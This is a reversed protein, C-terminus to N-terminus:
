NHQSLQPAAQAVAASLPPFGTAAPPLSFFLQPLSLAPNPVGGGGSSCHKSLNNVHSNNNTHNGAAAAAAAAAAASHLGRLQNSLLLQAHQPELLIGEKSDVAAPEPLISCPPSSSPSSGSVNINRGEGSSISGLFPKEDKVQDTRGMITDISFKTVDKKKSALLDTTLSPPSTQPIDPPSIPPPPPSRKHPLLPVTANHPFSPPFRFGPHGPPYLPLGPLGHHHHHHPYLPHSAAAAAASFPPPPPSPFAPPPGGARGGNIMNAQMTYQSLLKRTFPDLLPYPGPMLQPRKYRKRRRLFSGNDFMDEAMPDLTWFNGKGPNGPERPIKVFCDNLSLNHRISNQWAPFKEKYYPFRAKIFECIGSLTLRKHPSQLISMTILAIYSYPPKVSGKKDGASDGGGGASAEADAETPEMDHEMIDGEDSGCDEEEFSSNQADLHFDGNHHLPYATPLPPLMGGGIGGEASVAPSVGMFRALHDPPPPPSSVGSETKIPFATNTQHHHHHYLFNQINFAPPSTLETPNM